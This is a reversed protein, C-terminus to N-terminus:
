YFHYIYINNFSIECAHKKNLEMPHPPSNPLLSLFLPPPTPLSTFTQGYRRVGGLVMLWLTRSRYMTTFLLHPELGAFHIFVIARPPSVGIRFFQKSHRGRVVTDIIQSYPPSLTTFLPSHDSLPISNILAKLARVPCLFINSISPLQVVHYSKSSQLTKSWKIILHAGPPGFILDKRLFHKNPDFKSLSHPAINSMRLFVYCAVLFITRFLVPDQLIDCSLSIFYITKIDFIEKPSPSFQSNISISRLFRSLLPYSFARM